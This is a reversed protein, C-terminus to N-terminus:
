LLSNFKRYPLKEERRYLFICKPKDQKNKRRLKIQSMKEKDPLIIKLM